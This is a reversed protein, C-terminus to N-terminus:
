VSFSKDPPFKFSIEQDKGLWVLLDPESMCWVVSDVAIASFRRRLPFADRHEFASVFAVQKRDFGAADTIKLLEEKREETVPGDTAVVEVFVLLIRERGIDSLVLDPLIRQQDISLGLDRLLKDDQIVVKNGSESIWLVAPKYLFREAFEEIVAKTILSSPGAHMIRTEGNPLTVQVAGEALHREQMIRVRALEAPSLYREQWKLAEKKFESSDQLLFLDAFHKRLAYRGRSSTTPIKENVVVAGKPILGNKLSEDRIQERSNDAYWRKGTPRFGPRMCEVRYKGRSEEDQMASQQDTMKYVQKPSLWIGNGEIADIYLMVFIIKAATERVVYQRDAIGQPFITELREQIEKVNPLPEKALM